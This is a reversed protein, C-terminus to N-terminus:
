KISKKCHDKDLWDLLGALTKGTRTLTNTEQNKGLVSSITEGWAGFRYGKKNILTSNWLSRFARNGFIDIDKALEYFYGKVSKYKFAVHVFSVVILPLLLSYAIIFLLLGLM